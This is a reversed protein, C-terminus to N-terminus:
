LGTRRLGLTRKKRVAAKPPAKVAKAKAAKPPAEEGSMITFGELGIEAPYSKTSHRVGKMKIVEVM